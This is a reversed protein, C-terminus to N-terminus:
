KKKNNKVYVTTNQGEWRGMKEFENKGWSDAKKGKLKANLGVNFGRTYDLSDKKTAPMDVDVGMSRNNMQNAMKMNKFTPKVVKKKSKDQM